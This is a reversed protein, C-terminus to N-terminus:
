PRQPVYAVAQRLEALDFQHTDCGDIRVAGAQAHYLGAILKLVTSKGSGNPGVVAVVNGPEAKLSIHMLEPDGQGYRFTVREFEAHGRIAGVEATGASESAEETMAMLTELQRSATHAQQMRTFNLMLSQMPGLVKWVLIMSGILGGTTLEGALVVYVGTVITALGAGQGM